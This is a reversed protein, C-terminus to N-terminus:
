DENMWSNDITSDTSNQQVAPQDQQGRSPRNGRRRQGPGMQGPSVPGGKGDPAQINGSLMDEVMKGAQPMHRLRMWIEHTVKDEAKRDIVLWQPGQLHYTLQQETVQEKQRPGAQPKEVLTSDNQKEYKGQGAIGCGSGMMGLGINCYSGDATITKLVPLVRMEIRGSDGKQFICLQWVGDLTPKMKEGQEPRKGDEGEQASVPLAAVALLMIFLSKWIKKM